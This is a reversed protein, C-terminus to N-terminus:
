TKQRRFLCAMWARLTLPVAKCLIKLHQKPWLSFVMNECGPTLDHGSLVSRPHISWGEDLSCKLVKYFSLSTLGM